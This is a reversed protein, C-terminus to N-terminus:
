ADMYAVRNRGSGKAKYLYKDAIEVLNDASDARFNNALGISITVKMDEHYEHWPYNEIAKRIRECGQHAAELDTVPMILSFEEGGYRAAIDVNRLNDLFIKAVKKLVEDGMQHSYTDNLKKFHDIDLMALCLSREYRKAEEFLRPLNEDLFRRNYLGTLGDRISLEHIKKNLKTLKQNQHELEGKTDELAKNAVELELNKHKFIAAERKVSEVERTIKLARLESDAKALLVDKELQHYKQFHQLATRYDGMKKHLLSLELHCSYLANIQGRVEVLQLAKQIYNLAKVTDGMDRYTAGIKLLTQHIQTHGHHTLLESSVSTITPAPVPEQRSFYESKTQGANQFSLAKHFHKLAKSFDQMNKYADGLSTYVDVLQQTEGSKVALDEAKEAAQLSRQAFGMALHCNAIQIMTAAEKAKDGITRYLRRARTSYAIADNYDQLSASVWAMTTLAKAEAEKFNHQHTLKEVRSLAELAEQYLAMEAYSKALSNLSRLEVEILKHKRANELSELAVRISEEYMTQQELCYALYSQITAQEKECSQTDATDTIKQIYNLTKEAYQIAQTLDSQCLEIVEERMRQLEQINPLSLFDDVVTQSLQRDLM